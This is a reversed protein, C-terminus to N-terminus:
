TLDTFAYLSKKGKILRLRETGREGLIYTSKSLSCMRARAKKSMTKGWGFLTLQEGRARKTEGM